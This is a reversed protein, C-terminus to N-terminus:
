VIIFAGKLIRRYSFQLKQFILSLIWSLLFWVNFVCSVCSVFGMLFHNFILTNLFFFILLIKTKSLIRGTKPKKWIKKKNKIIFPLHTKCLAQMNHMLFLIYFFFSLFIFYFGHTITFYISKCIYREHTGIFFNNCFINEKVFM